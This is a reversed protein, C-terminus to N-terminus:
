QKLIDKYSNRKERSIFVEVVATYVELAYSKCVCFIDTKILSVIVVRNWERIRNIEILM